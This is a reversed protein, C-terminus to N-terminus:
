PKADGAIDMGLLKMSDELSSVPVLINGSNFTSLYLLEIGGKLLRESM